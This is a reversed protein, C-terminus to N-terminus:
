KTMIEYIQSPKFAIIENPLYNQDNIRAWCARVFIYEANKAEVADSYADGIYLSQKGKICTKESLYKLGDGSPKGKLGDPLEDATLIFHFNQKILQYAQITELAKRPKSTYISLLKKELSLSEIFGTIGDCLKVERAEKESAKFYLDYIENWYEKGIGISSLIIHFPMGLHEEYREFTPITLKNELGKEVESWAKRMVPITDALVGDFDFVIHDISPFSKLCMESESYVEDGEFGHTSSILKAQALDEETDIDLAEKKTVVKIYPNGGIRTGYEEYNEKIYVYIGSNEVLVPALQQTQAINYPDYNLPKGKYWAYSKIEEATFASDYGGQIVANICAQISDKTLFPTTPHVISQITHPLLKASYQFLENAHVSDSDLYRPRPLYRIREDLKGACYVNSSYIFIDWSNDLEILQSFIYQYLPMGNILRLNKGKVRRSHFKIPVIIAVEGKM